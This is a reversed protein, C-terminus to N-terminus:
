NEFVTVLDPDEFMSQPSIVPEAPDFPASKGFRESIKKQVEPSSLDFDKASKIEGIEIGAGKAFIKYVLESCYIASDDWGFRLDYPKGDFSEGVKKMELLAAADIPAALRKVVVHGKEGRAVWERLPTLKVPGVAEYVFPKGDRVYVIGMHTYRSKTALAVAASQSSRSSQFVIDADRLLAPDPASKPAAFLLFACLLPSVRRM